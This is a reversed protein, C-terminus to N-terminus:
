LNYNIWKAVVQYVEIETTVLLSSRSLIEELLNVELKLFNDTELIILFWSDMYVLAYKSSTFFTKLITLHMCFNEHVMKDKFYKIPKQEENNNLVLKNLQIAQVIQLEQLTVKGTILILLFKIDLKLFILLLTFMKVYMYEVFIQCWICLNIIFTKNM